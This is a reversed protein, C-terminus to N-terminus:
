SRSKTFVRCDAILRLSHIALPSVLLFFRSSPDDEMRRPVQLTNAFHARFPIRFSKEEMDCNEHSAFRQTANLASRIGGGRADSEAKLARRQRTWPNADYVRTSRTAKTNRPVGYLQM